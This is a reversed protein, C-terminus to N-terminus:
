VFFCPQQVQLVECVSLDVQILLSHGVYIIQIVDQALFQLKASLCGDCKSDEHCMPCNMNCRNTIKLDMSEPFDADFFDLDNERVKTGDDYLSVTYNGNQYKGILNM